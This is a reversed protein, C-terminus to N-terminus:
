AAMASPSFVNDNSYQNPLWVEDLIGLDTTGDRVWVFKAHTANPLHLHGYGYDSIDRKAVWPEPEDHQYGDSHQERNGGAGLTLYIPAGDVVRGEYLPLTRLYAHDHGSIVFNVQYQFLLDEVVAKMQVTQTENVHGKFTTYFPNHFSVILWPTTTSREHQSQELTTQLFEYQPSGVATDAYSALVVIRALGHVYTYFANGYNYHGQFVSPASCSHNWLTRQYDFSIPEIRAAGLRNPNRFYHEYPQFPLHTTTDCEIEHNGVAVQLLTSRFLPEHRDFFSPWRQPDSDAYSMDGAILVQTVLRHNHPNHYNPTAKYIHHVTKSSNVTQGLDGVLALTTPQGPKPPTWVSYEPTEVVVTTTRRTLPARSRRSPIRGRLNKTEKAHVLVRIKYWYRQVGAKLHTLTVHYIWDSHYDVTNTANSTYNFQLPAVVM